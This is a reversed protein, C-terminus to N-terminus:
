LWRLSSFMFRIWKEFSKWKSSIRVSFCVAGPEDFLLLVHWIVSLGNFNVAFTHTHTHSESYILLSFLWLFNTSLSNKHEFKEGDWNLRCDFIHTMASIKCLMLHSWLWRHSNPPLHYCVTSFTVTNLKPASKIEDFVLKSLRMKWDM